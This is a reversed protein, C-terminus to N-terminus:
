GKLTHKEDGLLEEALAPTIVIRSDQAFRQPNYKIEKFLRICPDKLGRAGTKPSSSKAIIELTEHEIEVNYGRALLQIKHGELPSMAPKNLINIKDQLTLSDFVGISSIRGVLEGMLGYKILDDVIVKNLLASAKKPDEATHQFGIKKEIGLRKSIIKDLGVFTGTFVMFLNSTDFWGSKEKGEWLEVKGNELISLLERQIQPGWSNREYGALKDIENLIVYGFPAEKDSRNKIFVFPDSLSQGVYGTGSVTQLDISCKPLGTLEAAHSVALTKGVGTPGIYLVVPKIHLEGNEMGVMYDSLEVSFSKKADHQSEIKEDLSKHISAPESWDIDRIKDNGVFFRSGKRKQHKTRWFYHQLQIKDLSNFNFSVVRDKDLYLGRCVIEGDTESVLALPYPKEMGQIGLLFFPSGDYPTLNGDKLLGIHIRYETKALPLYSRDNAPGDAIKLDFGSFHYHITADKRKYSFALRQRVTREGIKLVTLYRDTVYELPLLYPTFQNEKYDNSAINKDYSIASLIQELELTSEAKSSM